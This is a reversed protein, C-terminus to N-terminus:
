IDMLLGVFQIYEIDVNEQEMVKAVADSMDDAKINVTYCWNTPCVTFQYTDM